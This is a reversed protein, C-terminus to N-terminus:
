ECSDQQKARCMACATISRWGSSSHARAKYSAQGSGEPGRAAPRQQKNQKHQKTKNQKTTYSNATQKNQKTPYDTAPTDGRQGRENAETRWKEQTGM